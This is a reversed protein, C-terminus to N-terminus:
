VSAASPVGEVSRGARRARPLYRKLSKMLLKRDWVPISNLGNFYFPQRRPDFGRIHTAILKGDDLAKYAEMKVMKSVRATESWIVIVAAAAELQEGIEERFDRGAPIEHDWWPDFGQKALFRALAKTVAVDLHSYSIFIRSRKARTRKPRATARPAARIPADADKRADKSADKRPTPGKSRKKGSGSM